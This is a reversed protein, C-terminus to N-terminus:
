DLSMCQCSCGAAACDNSSDFWELLHINHGGHHCKECWSFWEDFKSRPAPNKPTRHSRVIEFYPNVSSYPMLCIVCRPLANLCEPCQSMFPKHSYQAIGKRKNEPNQMLETLALSNGCFYCRFNKGNERLSPSIEHEDIDLMCRTEWLELKNLIEKYKCSWHVLKESPFQSQIVISLLGVSQLDRTKKKYSKLTEITQETFGTIILTTLKGQAQSIAVQESYFSSLDSDSLFKLAFILKDYLPLTSLISKYNEPGALFLFIARTSADETQEALKQFLQKIKAQGEEFQFTELIVVFTGNAGESAALARLARPIDFNVIATFASQTFHGRSELLTCYSHLQDPSDVDYSDLLHLSDTRFSSEYMRHGNSLKKSSPGARNQFLQALGVVKSHIGKSRSIWKWVQSLPVDCATIEANKEPDLSYGDKARQKYCLLESSLETELSLKRLYTGSM